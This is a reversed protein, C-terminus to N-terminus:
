AIALAGAQAILNVLAFQEYGILLKANANVASANLILEQNGYQMTSIPKHRHSFYYSGVPFDDQVFNRTFGSGLYPDFKQYNIYNAAQIAWYNVDTGANLTGGNDFIVSTSLFDRFNAYPIPFDQNAVIGTQTVNNLLYVTSLDNIPLVVGQQPVVPLQDLYNQYCNYTVSSIVASTTGAYMALSPDGGAAVFPAANITAQLTATANTVGLWIAGRFDTDSYALPIEYIMKVTGTGGNKAIVSPASIVPFNSGFSVPSDNLVASMYARGRKASAVAFLHWGTTQIRVNNSLDTFVVQSLLNAPGWPTITLDNAPDNNTITASIELWFRKALGVLRPSINIINNTSGPTAVTGSQVSQIMNQAQQLILARALANQQQLNPKSSGGSNPTNQRAM